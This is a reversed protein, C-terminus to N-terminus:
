SVLRLYNEAFTRVHNPVDVGCMWTGRWGSHIMLSAIYDGNRGYVRLHEFEPRLTWHTVTYGDIVDLKTEGEALERNM